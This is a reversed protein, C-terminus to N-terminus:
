FCLLNKKRAEMITAQIKSLFIIITADKDILKDYCPSVLCKLRRTM